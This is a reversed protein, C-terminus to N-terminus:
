DDYLFKSRCLYLKKHFDVSVDKCKMSRCRHPKLFKKPFKLFHKRRRTHQPRCTIFYRYQIGGRASFRISNTLSPMYIFSFIRVPKSPITSFALPTSRGIRTTMAAASASFMTRPAKMACSAPKTSGIRTPLSCLIRATSSAMPSDPRSTVTISAEPPSLEIWNAISIILEPSASQRIRPLELVRSKRM